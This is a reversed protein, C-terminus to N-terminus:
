WKLGNLLNYLMQLWSMRENRRGANVSEAGLNYTQGAGFINQGLNTYSELDKRKQEENLIAVDRALNQIGSETQWAQDALQGLGVGTGLIGEGGLTDMMSTRRNAEGARLKDFGAGFVQDLSGQNFGPKTGMVQNARGMLASYLGQMEAPWKFEGAGQGTGTGGGMCDSGYGTDECYKQCECQGAYGPNNPKSIFVYGTVCDAQSNAYYKTGRPCGEYPKGDGPKEGGGGGGGACKAKCAEREALLMTMDLGAALRENYRAECAEVCADKKPPIDPDPKRKPTTGGEPRDPDPPREIEDKGFWYPM